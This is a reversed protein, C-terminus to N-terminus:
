LAQGLQRAATLVADEAMAPRHGQIGLERIAEGSSLTKLPVQERSQAM